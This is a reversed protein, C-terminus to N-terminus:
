TSAHGRAVAIVDSFVGQGALEPGAGPGIITVEGVPPAECVVANLVGEIRALPDASALTLPEVRATLGHDSRELTSVLRIRSGATRAAQIADTELDGIGVRVVDDPRLQQGFVLAGLIMTKAMSDYGDVDASPDREALGVEQAKALADEYSRGHEMETLVFTATANLVGRLRVPTTGALGEVLTSLVPTGSMVTSEARFAVGASRASAMLELGHLAVPWKNSTVVSIARGLASRMHSIGPEGSEPPSASVEVLVDADTAEIGQLCTRWHAGPHESLSRRTSRLELVRPLDLGSEEFVYGERASGVGIVRLAVDYERALRREHTLLARLLWQGVTGLGVVALRLERTV